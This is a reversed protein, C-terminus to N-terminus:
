TRLRALRATGPGGDRRGGRGCGTGLADMGTAQRLAVMCGKRSSLLLADGECGRRRRWCERAACLDADPECSEANEEEEEADEKQEVGRQKCHAVHARRLVGAL